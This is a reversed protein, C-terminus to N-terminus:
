SEFSASRLAAVAAAQRERLEASVEIIAYTDPLEGLEALTRLVQVALAGSGAGYEM